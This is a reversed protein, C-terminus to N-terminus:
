KNSVLRVDGAMLTVKTNKFLMLFALGVLVVPVSTSFTIRRENKSIM